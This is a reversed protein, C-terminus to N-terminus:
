RVLVVSHLFASTSEVTSAAPNYQARYPLLIGTVDNGQMREVFFGLINTVQVQFRGSTKDQFHYADVNFIPIPVIRPSNNVGFAGGVVDTGNWTAGPDQAILDSVGQNTPGIMNGPETWLLDGINVPLSNCSAINTRYREGGTSPGGPLPLDIPFFWGATLAQSPNGSKMRVRMGVDQPVQFSTVGVNAPCNNMYPGQLNTLAAHYCDVTGPMLQGRNPGNQYYREYKDELTWTPTGEIPADTDVADYWKDTLAWPRMCSASNGVLVRATATARVGQNAVDLLRAFFTPLPNGRAQNRYVDVRVCVDSANTIGPPCTGITIDNVPDINPAQGWIQNAEGTAEAAFRARNTDAPAVFALSVAGALAASDAANQAQRRATWMVGYDISLACFGLLGIMGVAVHILVAGRESRLREPLM